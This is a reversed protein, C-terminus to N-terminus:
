SSVDIFGSVSIFALYPAQPRTTPATPAIITPKLQPPQTVAAGLGLRLGVRRDKRGARRDADRLEGLRRLVLLPELFQLRRIGPFSGGHDFLAAPVPHGAFLLGLGGHAPGAGVPEIGQHLFALAGQPKARPPVLRLTALTAATWAVYAATFVWEPAQYFLLARVWRAVFSEARVGGRLLDEWVTLPCAIGLVAEGAVFAIAALHAYRFWPNRVWGWGLAAGLWVAALGLVIFGAILFHVILIADAMMSAHCLSEGVQFGFLHGRRLALDRGLDAGARAAFHAAREDGPDVVGLERAPQLREALLQAPFRGQRRLQDLECTRMQARRQVQWCSHNM